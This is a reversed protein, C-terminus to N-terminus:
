GRAISSSRSPSGLVTLESLVADFQPLTRLDCYAEEFAQRARRRLEANTETSALSERIYRALKEAEGHRISLGCHFRRIAVDVNSGQPGVYLVPLGMALTGHLKSPSMVGLASDDLTILACSAAKMVSPTEEKPVYGCMVVNPLGLDKAAQEIEQWRAGGGVFLFVVPDARLLSAAELVTDFRHGYGTNGLYLVVFKDRLGLEDVRHWRPPDADAPFLSWSEWNPIIAAPLRRDRPSYQSLLLEQMAGDLAILYDMRAFLKRNILRMARALVGRERVIGFREMAEPYCDMNWLVLKTSPHFLKHLLAAIAIFAPTTMSVIVDQRPMAVLRVAAALHFCAYALIRFLNRSKGLQPTWLRVVRVSGTREEGLRERLPEVYGGRSTIVTVEDGLGARHEALSRALHATPSLDPPYFQNLITLRM